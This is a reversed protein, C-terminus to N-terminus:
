FVIWADLFVGAFLAALQILSAFFNRMATAPGPNRVHLLSHWLFYAGGGAAFVLYIPGLGIFGPVLSLGVLLATHALIVWASKQAGITMPLMPINAREYDAKLASALSWFHPPTWLFLVIALVFPVPAEPNIAAAGALVAFSGSLGGVVINLPTRPKLWVTYVICYFFAGLFLYAAVWHNFVFSSIVVAAALLACISGMWYANATFAGTVFPRNSTRKMLADTDREVYQNYAGAAASSAFVCLALVVIESATLGIGPTAIMGMMATLTIFASIRVKFVSALMKGMSSM